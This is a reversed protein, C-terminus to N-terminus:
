DFFSDKTAVDSLYSDIRIILGDKVTVVTVLHEDLLRGSKEATNHLIFAVGYKGELRHLFETRVGQEAIYRARATLAAPGHVDGGLRGGGPMTWVSDAAFLTAVRPWDRDSYAQLFADAPNTSTLPKEEGLRHLHEALLPSTQM